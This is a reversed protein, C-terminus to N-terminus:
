YLRELRRRELLSAGQSVTIKTKLLEGLNAAAWDAVSANAEEMAARTTFMSVSCLYNEEDLYIEYSVFGVTDYLLPAFGENVRRVIEDVKSPDVKSKRHSIYM